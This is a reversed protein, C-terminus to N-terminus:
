SERDVAWLLVKHKEVQTSRLTKNLRRLPYLLTQRYNTFGNHPFDESKMELAKGEPLKVLKDALDCWYGRPARSSYSPIRVQRM